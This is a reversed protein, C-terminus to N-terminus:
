LSEWEEGVIKWVGQRHEIKLRKLGFDTYSDSVYKQIYTVVADQDTIVLEPKIVQVKIISNNLNIDAKYSRWQKLGMDQSRFSSAYCDMYADIDKHEWAAIWMNLFRCLGRRAGHNRDSKDEPVTMWDEDIIKLTDSNYQLYLDKIGSSQFTDSEYDQFLRVMLTKDHRYISVNQITVDIFKYKSNLRQKTSKWKSWAGAKFKQESYCAMYQTLEKDEWSREWAALLQAVRAREQTVLVTDLPPLKEAVIIPTENLTIYSSVEEIDANVMAICGQTDYARLPRDLGHLWIGDGRKREVSDLVNPFNLVFARIGYKAPLQHDNHIKTFYYVGEPTKRDGRLTKDGHKKGTTCEFTKILSYGNNDVRYVFLRQSVKEVFLAFESHSQIIGAPIFDGKSTQPDPAVVSM